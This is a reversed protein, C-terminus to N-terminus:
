ASGSEGAQQEWVWAEARVAAMLLPFDHALFAEWHNGIIKVLEDHNSKEYDASTLFSHGFVYTWKGSYTTPSEKFLHGQKLAMHLLQQRTEQPGPGVLLNLSLSEEANDFQFLFIRGSATWGSGVLLAPVDWEKPAFRIYRKPASDRLLGPTEKILGLLVERIAAQRDPRHEYIIDLARRHKQWLLRCLEAIESDGVVHRRLMQTYHSLLMVMDKGPTVAQSQMLNELLRCIIEYDLPLFRKDSPLRGDPTLFLGLVKWGPYADEVINRYRQLQNSHEDTDIKNEIVVALHHAESLVFIDINRWERLVLAQDLSWVELDLPTISIDRSGKAPLAKQLLRKLFVDGLGHSEQPNLLFALFDSHRLEQRAAGLAEFINFQGLLVELQELEPNEIVLAALAQRDLDSPKDAETFAGM